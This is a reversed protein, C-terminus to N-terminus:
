VITFRKNKNEKNSATLHLSLKPQVGTVATQSQIVQLALQELDTEAYPLGPSEPQGFMKKSCAPHYDVALQEFPLYCYLCRKMRRRNKNM